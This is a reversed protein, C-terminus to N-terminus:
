ASAQQKRPDFLLKEPVGAKRLEALVAESHIHGNLTASVAQRSVGAREAVRPGDLGADDLHKQILRKNQARKQGYVSKWSV